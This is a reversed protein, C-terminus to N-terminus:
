ISSVYFLAIFVIELDAESFDMNGTQSHSIVARNQEAEDDSFLQALSPSGPPITTPLKVTRTLGPTATM